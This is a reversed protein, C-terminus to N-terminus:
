KAYPMVEPFCEAIGEKWPYCTVHEFKKLFREQSLVIAECDPIDRTIKIFSAIDQESIMDSSKIEICLLKKGPREVVLDVEIDAPTRIFSLRYDPQFYSGLRIFELIIFHKFAEGYSFTKPLLPLSLRRSLSRVVGPDFFYFKPKGALRKRFSNQFSELYFGIMTDELINFYEKITKDDVGVDRAINAYNIIKGNSQAAVELFKRFPPLKRVIQESWIEEKLYTDGYARLFADKEISEELSFIKPLTGWLLAKELEFDKGIEFCSLSYLHSVFARGALLNAGGYKLKRASSGTLIFIKKTEEILRHVEDLLKSVKQIEDIVVYKIKEPLAKVIAYLESPNRIFREELELDLLDLWLCENPNFREKLLTSKGTGRPGFLFFSHKHSFHILRPFM